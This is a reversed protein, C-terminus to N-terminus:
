RETSFFHNWADSVFMMKILCSVYFDTDKRFSIRYFRSLKLSPMEGLDEDCFQKNKVMDNIWKAANGCMM